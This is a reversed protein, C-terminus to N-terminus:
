YPSSPIAPASPTRPKWKLSVKIPSETREDVRVVADERGEAKFTLVVFKGAGPKPVTKLQAPPAGDISVLATPPNPDLDITAVDPIEMVPAAPAASASAAVPEAPLAPPAPAASVPAPVPPAAAVSTSSAPAKNKQLYLFGGGGALLAVIVGIAIGGVVNYKGGEDAPQMAPGFGTADAPHMGTFSADNGLLPHPGLHSPHSPYSSGYPAPPQSISPLPPPALMGHPLQSPHSPQSYQGAPQSYGLQSPHSPQSLHSLSPQSAENRVVVQKVGSASSSTRPARGSPTMGGAEDRPDFTSTSQATRIREKRREIRDGIRPRLAQAVNAQTVVPGSRALWEELAIRLQEATQFRQAPDAALATTVIRDLGAPYGQVKQSPRTYVGAVLNQMLQMDNDARFPAIGCTAEYLVCGASFIDARRDAAGAVQEPAMYALKGKIQGATTHEHLQGLAKAVGFDAVKVNGEASVLINHPSFDRHVVQLAHGDDGVLEHAAHLGACADAVIRAVIRYDLVHTEGGGTPRLVRALSDGNVWEMALYLTGNEDGLEYTECVNPHHVNSAIRAEDLFMREFEPERALHPLITKIAVLKTFGRQGHQRAAWVRAMGGRAIAVLLEYRGLRMGPSLVGPEEGLDDM